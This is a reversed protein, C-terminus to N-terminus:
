GSSRQWLQRVAEKAVDIDTPRYGAESLPAVVDEVTVGAPQWLPHTELLLRVGAGNLIGLSGRLVFYEAGEVDVKVFSPELGLSLSLADLTISREAHSGEYSEFRPHGESGYPFTVRICGGDGAARSIVCFKVESFTVSLSAVNRLLAGYARQDPELMVFTAGPRAKPALLAAYWGHFAGVDVFDGGDYVDYAASSEAVLSAQGRWVRFLRAISQHSPRVVGDWFLVKVPLPAVANRIGRVVRVAVNSSQLLFRLRNMSSAGYLTIISINSSFHNGTGCSDLSSMIASARAPSRV